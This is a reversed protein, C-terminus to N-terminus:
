RRAKLLSVCLEPPMGLPWGGMRKAEEKRGWGERGRGMRGEREEEEKERERM